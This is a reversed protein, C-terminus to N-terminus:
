LKESQGDTQRTVFNRWFRIVNRQFIPSLGIYDNDFYRDNAM